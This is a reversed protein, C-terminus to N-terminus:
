GDLDEYGGMEEDEEVLYDVNDPLNISSFQMAKILDEYQKLCKNHQQAMVQTDHLYVIYCDSLWRLRKRIYSGKKGAEHLLLCAWVRISHCLFKMLDERSINQHVALAVEQIYATLTDATIYVVKGNKDPYVSLPLDDQQNLDAARKIM